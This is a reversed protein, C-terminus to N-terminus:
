RRGWLVKFRTDGAAEGHRAFAAALVGEYPLTRNAVMFLRGGPRLASAAARIMAAGIEPEAARGHHFPPNMLIADYRGEVPEALLDHWFFGAALHPAHSAMNRRAAVLSAHHAEYLDVATVASSRRAIEAALYGWGAGFDAIRGALNDPLADLLCRSGPDIAGRSFGGPATEYGEVDRGAAGDLAALGDDRLVDPRTLWFVVGHHKSAHGDLAGLGSLRKRLSAAGDQKTGAALITAGARTRALADALRAEIEERHRGLVVFAADFGTETAVPEPEVKYGAAKLALYDSRFGQVFSFQAKEPGAPPRFGRGAGLVLVREGAGPVALLGRDFPHFLTASIGASM